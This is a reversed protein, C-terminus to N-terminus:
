CEKQTDGAIRTVSDRRCHDCDWPTHGSEPDNARCVILTQCAGCGDDLVADALQFTGNQTEPTFMLLGDSVGGEINTRVMKRHRAPIKVTKLLCVIGAERRPENHESDSSSSCLRVDVIEGCGIIHPKASEVQGFVHVEGRASCTVRDAQHDEEM